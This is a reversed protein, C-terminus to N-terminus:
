IAFLRYTHPSCYRKESVLDFVWHGIQALEQSKELCAQEFEFPISM